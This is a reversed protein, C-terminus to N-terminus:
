RRPTAGRQDTVSLGAHAKIKIALNYQGRPAISIKDGFLKLSELQALSIEEEDPFITIEADEEDYLVARSTDYFTMGAQECASKVAAEVAQEREWQGTSADDDHEDSEFLKIWDRM